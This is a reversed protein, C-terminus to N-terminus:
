KFDSLKWREDSLLMLLPIKLARSDMNEVLNMSATATLITGSSGPQPDYHVLTGWVSRM